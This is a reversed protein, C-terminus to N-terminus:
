NGASQSEDKQPADPTVDKPEQSTAVTDQAPDIPILFVAIAYVLLMAWGRTVVALVVVILRVFVVDVSLFHALGSCVGFILADKPNRYLKKGSLNEFM